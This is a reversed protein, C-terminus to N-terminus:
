SLREVSGAVAKANTLKYELTGGKTVEISFAINSGTVAFSFAVEYGSVSKATALGQGRYELGGPIVLCAASNLRTLQVVGLAPKQISAKFSEKAGPSKSLEDSFNDAVGGLSGSGRATNCATIVTYKISAADSQGDTSKATVEYVAPGVGLTTNLAGIGGTAGNSDTCSELGSGFAAEKCAFKTNVVEGEKYTGGGLPAEITATPPEAVTYSLSAVEAEGSLSKAEVTYSHTGPTSTNLEGEGGAVTNTHNNDDCSELGAGLKGETCSFKTKVVQDVAYTHGAQPAEITAKPPEPNISYEHTVTQKQGDSDEATVTFKNSTSSTTNIQSGTPVTGVCSRLTTGAAPACSYSAYIKEGYNYTAFQGPTTLTV